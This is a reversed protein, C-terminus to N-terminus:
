SGNGKRSAEAMAHYHEAARFAERHNILRGPDDRVGALYEYCISRYVETSKVGLIRARDGLAVIVARPIRMRKEVMELGLVRQWESSPIIAPDKPQRLYDHLLTLFLLQPSWSRLEARKQLRAWMQTHFRVNLITDRAARQEHFPHAARHVAVAEHFADFSVGLAAALREEGAPDVQLKPWVSSLLLSVLQQRFPGAREPIKSWDIRDSM